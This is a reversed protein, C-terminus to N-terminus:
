AASARLSGTDPQPKAPEATHLPIQHRGRGASRAVERGRIEHPLVPLKVRM